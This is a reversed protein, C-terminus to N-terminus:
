LNEKHPQPDEQLPSKREKTRKKNAARMEQHIQEEELFCKYQKQKYFSTMCREKEELLM